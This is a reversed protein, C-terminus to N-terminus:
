GPPPAPRTRVFFPPLRSPYAPFSPQARSLPLPAPLVALPPFRVAALAPSRDRICMKQEVVGRVIEASEMGTQATVGPVLCSIQHMREKHYAAKGFQLMVHRNVFLQEAVHPGLADATVERNGLGVVLISKEKEWDPIVSRLQRALEMSVERQYEEDQETLGEAELTLYTGVPKGMIKAGNKTEIKVRTIRIGTEEKEEEELVVGHVETGSERIREGDELALDTRVTFCSM